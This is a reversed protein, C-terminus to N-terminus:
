QWFAGSVLWKGNVWVMEVTMDRIYRKNGSVYTEERQASVIVQASVADSKLVKQTVAQTTVGVFDHSQQGLIETKYGDLWQAVKDTVESKLEEFNSFNALVSWSGFREVFNRAQNKLMVERALESLEAVTAPRNEPAASAIVPRAGAEGATQTLVTQEVAPAEALPAKSKFLAVFILVIILILVAGGIVFIKARFTFM